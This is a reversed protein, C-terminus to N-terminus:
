SSESTQLFRAFIPISITTFKRPPPHPSWESQIPSYSWRRTQCTIYSKSDRRRTAYQSCAMSQRGRILDPLAVNYQGAHNCGAAM